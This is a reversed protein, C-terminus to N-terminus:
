FNLTGQGFPCNFNLCPFPHQFQFGTMIKSKKASTYCKIDFGTLTVVQVENSNLATPGLTLTNNPLVLLKKVDDFKHNLLRAHDPVEYVSDSQGM